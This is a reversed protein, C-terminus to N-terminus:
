YSSTTKKRGGWVGEELGRRTQKRPLSRVTGNSASTLLSLGPPESGGSIRPGEMGDRSGIVSILEYVAAISTM